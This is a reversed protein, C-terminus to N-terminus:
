FLVSKNEYNQLRVAPHQCHQTGDSPKLLLINGQTKWRRSFTQMEQNMVGEGMKFHMVVAEIEMMREDETTVDGEAGGNPFSTIVNSGGLYGVIIEM